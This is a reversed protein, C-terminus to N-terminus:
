DTESFLYQDAAYETFGLRMLEVIAWGYGVDSDQYKRKIMIAKSCMTM